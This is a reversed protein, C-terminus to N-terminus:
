LQFPFSCLSRVSETVLEGTESIMIENKWPQILMQQLVEGGLSCIVLALQAVNQPATNLQQKPHVCRGCPHRPHALDNSRWIGALEQSAISASELM